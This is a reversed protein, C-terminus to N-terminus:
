GKLAAEIATRFEEIPKAGKLPIGNIFFTPTSEVGYTSEAKDRGAVIGKAVDKNKLCAEFSEQTFGALQAVRFLAQKPNESRAWVEQQEYLFEIIPYYQEQPACRAVMFAALALDDFPFERFIFKVKGTDIYEKKLLPFTERHFDGCHPCTASAYEIVTVKADASGLVRDGLAVPENLTSLDSNNAAAGAAQLTADAAQQGGFWGQSWGWYGAGALVAVAAAGGLVTRRSIQTM